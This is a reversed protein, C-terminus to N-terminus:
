EKMSRREAVVRELDVVWGDDKDMNPFTNRLNGITVVGLGNVSLGWDSGVAGDVSVTSKPLVQHREFQEGSDPHFLAVFVTENSKNEFTLSRAVGDFLPPNYKDTIMPGINWEKGTEPATGLEAWVKGFVVLYSAGPIAYFEIENSEGVVVTAIQKDSDRRYIRALTNQVRRGNIDRVEFTSKLTGQVEDTFVINKKPFDIQLRTRIEDHTVTPIDVTFHRVLDIANELKLQHSSDLSLAKLAPYVAEEMRNDHRYGISLTYWHNANNPELETLAIYNDIVERVQGTRILAPIISWRIHPDNPRLEIARSLHRIAELDRGRSVASQGLLVLCELDETIALGKLAIKEVEFPKQLKAYCFAYERYAEIPLNPILSEAKAFAKVGAEYEGLERCVSGLQLFVNSDEPALETLKEWHQKSMALDNLLAYAAALRKQAHLNEPHQSAYDLVKSFNEETPQICFQLDILEGELMTLEPALKFARSLNEKERELDKVEHAHVSLGILAPVSENRLVLAAIFPEEIEAPSGVLLLLGLHLQLDYNSLYSRRAKEALDRLAKAEGLRALETGILVIQDPTWEVDDLTIESNSNGPSQKAAAQTRLKDIQQALRPNQPIGDIISKLGAITKETEEDDGAMDFLLSILELKARLSEEESDSLKPEDSNESAKQRDKLYEPLSNTAERCLSFRDESRLIIAAFTLDFARTDGIRKVLAVEDSELPVSKGTTYLSNTFVFTALAVVMAVPLLKMAAVVGRQTGRRLRIPWTSIKAGSLARIVDRKLANANAYRESPDSAMARMVIADLSNRCIKEWGNSMLNNSESHFEGSESARRIVESPLSEQRGIDLSFINALGQRVIDSSSVPAVGALLEFLVAGLSYVDNRPDALAGNRAQQPSMYQPTGLIQGHQTLSEFETSDGLRKALGFDIVKPIAKERRAEVLINTPKIDRHIIGNDHAFQIADCVQVFIGLREEIPLDHRSCFSTIPEGPILETVLFQQDLTTMGSGILRVINPHQLSSLIKKENEFRGVSQPSLRGGRLWKIAVPTKVADQTRGEFVMAMGGRGLLRTVDYGPFIRFSSVGADLTKEEDQNDTLQQEIFFEPKELFKEADAQRQFRWLDFLQEREDVSSIGATELYNRVALEDQLQSIAFFHNTIDRSM